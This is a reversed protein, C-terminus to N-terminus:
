PQREALSSCRAWSRIFSRCGRFIRSRPRHVWGSGAAATIAILFNIEPKTLEWYDLLVSASAARRGRVASVDLAALIPETAM